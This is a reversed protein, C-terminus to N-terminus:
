QKRSQKFTYGITYNFTFAAGDSKGYGPVYHVYNKGGATTHLLTRFRVSWGMTLGKYLNMRVGAVIEAWGSYVFNKDFQAPESGGWYGSEISMGSIHYNMFAMGYRVGIYPYCDLSRHKGNKKFPKLLGYNIGFRFYPANTKYTYGEEMVQTADAYGFEFIPFLRNYLNVDFQGEAGYVQKGHVLNMVPSLLDAHVSFGQFVPLEFNPNHKKERVVVSDKQAMVGLSAMVAMFFILVRKRM